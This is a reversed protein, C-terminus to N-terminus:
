FHGCLVDRNMIRELESISPRRAGGKSKPRVRLGQQGTRERM